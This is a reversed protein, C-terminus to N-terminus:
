KVCNTRWTALSLLNKKQNGFSHLLNLSLLAKAADRWNFTARNTCLEIESNFLSSLLSYNTGVKIILTHLSPLLENLDFLASVYNKDKFCFDHVQLARLHGKCSLLVQILGTVAISWKRTKWRFHLEELASPLEPITFKINDTQLRYCKGFKFEPKYLDISLVSLLPNSNFSISNVEGGFSFFKLKPVNMNLVGVFSVSKVIINELLLCNSIVSEFILRTTSLKRLELTVLNKFGKYSCPLKTLTFLHSLNLHRLQQCSFLNDPLKITKNSDKTCVLSLDQISNKILIYLWAQLTMTLDIRNIVIVFKQITGIHQNLICNVMSESQRISLWSKSNITIWPVTHWKQKWSKSLISTKAAEHILLYSLIIEILHQPLESLQDSNNPRNSTMSNSNNDSDLKQRKIKQRKSMIIEAFM